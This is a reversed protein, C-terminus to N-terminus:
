LQQVGGDVQCISCKVGKVGEYLGAGALRGRLEEVSVLEFPGVHFQRKTVQVTCCDISCSCRTSLLKKNSATCQDSLAAQGCWTRVGFGVAATDSDFHGCHQHMGRIGRIRGSSKGGGVGMECPRAKWFGMPLPSSRVKLCSLALSCPSGM